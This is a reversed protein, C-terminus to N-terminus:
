RYSMPIGSVQERLKTLPRGVRYRLATVPLCVLNKSRPSRRDRRGLRVREGEYIYRSMARM